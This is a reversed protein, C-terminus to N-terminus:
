NCQEYNPVGCNTVIYTEISKGLKYGYYKRAAKLGHNLSQYLHADLISESLKGSRTRYLKQKDNTVVYVIAKM